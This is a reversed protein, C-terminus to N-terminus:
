FTGFNFRQPGVRHWLYFIGDKVGTLLQLSFSLVSFIQLSTAKRRDVLQACSM